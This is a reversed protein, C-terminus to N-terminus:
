LIAKIIETTIRGLYVGDVPVQGSAVWAALGMFDIVLIALAIGTAIGTATKVKEMRSQPM